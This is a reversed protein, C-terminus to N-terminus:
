PIPYLAHWTSCTVSAGLRAQSMYRFYESDDPPPVSMYLFAQTRRVDSQTATVISLYIDLDCVAM